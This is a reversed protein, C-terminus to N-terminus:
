ARIMSNVDQSHLAALVQGPVLGSFIQLEKCWPARPLYDIVIREVAVDPLGRQVLELAM